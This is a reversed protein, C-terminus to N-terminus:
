RCACAPRLPSRRSSSRSRTASAAPPTGSIESFDLVEGSRTMEGTLWATEQPNMGRLFIAMLLASAQYDAWSGDVVGRVFFSIQERSLAAGDRKAIIVDQPFLAKAMRRKPFESALIGCPRRGM